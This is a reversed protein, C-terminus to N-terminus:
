SRVNSTDWKQSIIQYLDEPKQDSMEAIQEITLDQYRQILKIKNREGAILSPISSAIAAVFVFPLWSSDSFYSYLAYSFVPCFLCAGLVIAKRYLKWILSVRM